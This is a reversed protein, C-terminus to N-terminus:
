PCATSVGLWRGHSAWVSAVRNESTPVDARCDGFGVYLFLSGAAECRSASRLGARGEGKLVDM